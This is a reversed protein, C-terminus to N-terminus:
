GHLSEFKSQSNTIAMLILLQRKDRHLLEETQVWILRFAVLSREHEGPDVMLKCFAFCQLLPTLLEQFPFLPENCAVLFALVIQRAQVFIQLCKDVYATVRGVDKCAGASRKWAAFGM